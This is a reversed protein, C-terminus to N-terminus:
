GFSNALIQDRESQPQPFFIGLTSPLTFDYVFAYVEADNSFRDFCKLGLNIAKKQGTEGFLM